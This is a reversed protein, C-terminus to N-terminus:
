IESENQLLILHRSQMPPPCYVSEYSPQTQPVRPVFLWSNFCVKNPTFTELHILVLFEFPPFIETSFQAFLQTM